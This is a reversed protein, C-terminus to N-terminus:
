SLLLFTIELLCISRSTLFHFASDMHGGVIGCHHFLVKELLAYLSLNIM